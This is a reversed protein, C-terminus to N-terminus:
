LEFIQLLTLDVSGSVAICWAHDTIIWNPIAHINGFLAFGQATFMLALPRKEYATNVLFVPQLSPLCLNDLFFIQVPQRNHLDYSVFDYQSPWLLSTPRTSGRNIPGLQETPSQSAATMVNTGPLPSSFANLSSSACAEENNVVTWGSRFRHWSWPFAGKKTM